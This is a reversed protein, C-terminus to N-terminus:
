RFVAFGDGFLRPWSLEVPEEIRRFGLAPLGFDGM